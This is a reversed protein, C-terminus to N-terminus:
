ESETGFAEALEPPLPADFDDHLRIQGVLRGPRREDHLVPILRAVPVGARAIIVEEGAEMAELLRSLETKARHVNVM